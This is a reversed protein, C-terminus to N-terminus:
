IIGAFIVLNDGGVHRGNIFDDRVFVLWQFTVLLGVM